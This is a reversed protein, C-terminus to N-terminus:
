FCGVVDFHSDFEKSVSDMLRAPGGGRTRRGREERETTRGEDALAQRSFPSEALAPLAESSGGVLSREVVGSSVELLEESLVTIIANVGEGLAEGGGCRSIM